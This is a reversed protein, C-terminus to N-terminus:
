AIFRQADRACLANVGAEPLHAAKCALGKIFGMVDCLGQGTAGKVTYNVKHLDTLMNENHCFSCNALTDISLNYDDNRKIGSRTVDSIEGSYVM